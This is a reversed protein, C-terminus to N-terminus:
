SMRSSGSSGSRCETLALGAEPRARTRDRCRKRAWLLPLLSAAVLQIILPEPLVAIWGQGLGAATRGRGVITRGDASVGYAGDLTLGMLDLGHDVELVEQLSRMGAGATWIFATEVRDAAGVIVSGDGSVAYASSGYLGGPLDGLGEMGTGETWRFAQAGEFDFTVGVVVSGDESVAQAWGNSVPGPLGDLAVM